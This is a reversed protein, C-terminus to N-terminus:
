LRLRPSPTPSGTVKRDNSNGAMSVGRQSDLKRASQGRWGRGLGEEENKVSKTGSGWERM